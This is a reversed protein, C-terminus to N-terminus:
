FRLSVGAFAGFDQSANVLGVIVGADLMFDDTVVFTLGTNGYGQWDEDALTSAVSVIEVYSSLRETWAVSLSATDVFDVGHNRRVDDYDVGFAAMVTLSVRDNFDMSLPLILGGEVKDNGLDHSATPAKVFPMIAFATEGGDNGWVNWKLRVTLDGIGSKDAADGGTEREFIPVVLQLDTHNTLGAKFNTEGFTYNKVGGDKIFGFLTSEAQFHGADVTFPSETTDPRDPDMARMQDRPTPHFITYADKDASHLYCPLTLLLAILFPAKM